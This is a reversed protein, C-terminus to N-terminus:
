FHLLDVNERSVRNWAPYLTSSFIYIYMGKNDRGIIKVYIKSSTVSPLPVEAYIDSMPGDMDGDTEAMPQYSSFM